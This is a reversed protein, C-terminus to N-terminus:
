KILDLLEEASTGYPVNIRKINAMSTKENIADALNTVQIHIDLKRLEDVTKFNYRLYPYAFVYIQRAGLHYDISENAALVVKEMEKRSLKDMPTHIAGHNQITILGSYEMEKMQEWTMHPYQVGLEGVASTVIFITAKMNHKKLIPFANTYNNEYGDDFTLIIPKSPLSAGFRKYNYYQEFSISKYGADKLAQLQEDFEEVTVAMGKVDDPPIDKLCLHYMLVPIDISKLLEIDEVNLLDENYKNIYYDITEDLNIDKNIFAIVGDKLYFNLGLINAIDEASLFYQQEYMRIDSNLNFVKDGLSFCKNNISLKFSDGYLNASMIKEASDWVVNEGFRRLIRGIPLLIIDERVIPRINNFEDIYNQEQKDIYWKNSGICFALENMTPTREIDETILESSTPLMLSAKFIRDKYFFCIVLILLASILFIHKKQM